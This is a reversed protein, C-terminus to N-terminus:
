ALKEKPWLGLVRPVSQVSRLGFFLVLGWWVGAIGWGLRWSAGFFSATAILTIIMSRAVYQLDKCAVLVSGAAVDIGCLVM